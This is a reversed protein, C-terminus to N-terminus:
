LWVMISMVSFLGIGMFTARHATIFKKTESIAGLKVEAEAKPGPDHDHAPPKSKPRQSSENESYSSGELKGDHESPSPVHSPELGTQNQNQPATLQKTIKSPM